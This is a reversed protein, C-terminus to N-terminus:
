LTKKFAAKNKLWLLEFISKSDFGADDPRWFCWRDADEEKITLQILLHTRGEEDDIQYCPVGIGLGLSAGSTEDM